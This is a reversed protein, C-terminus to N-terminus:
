DAAKRTHSKKKVARKKTAAARKRSAVARMAQLRAMVDQPLSKGPNHLAHYSLAATSIASALTPDGSGVAKCIMEALNVYVINSLVPASKAAIFRFNQDLSLVERIRDRQPRDIQPRTHEAAIKGNERRRVAQYGTLAPRLTCRLTEILLPHPSERATGQLPEVLALADDTLHPQGWVALYSGFWDEFTPVVRQETQRDPYRVHLRLKNSVSVVKGSRHVAQIVYPGPEAFYFGDAGYTLDIQDYLSDLERKLVVNRGVSCRGLLPRFRRPQNTGHAILYHTEGHSPQLTDRVTRSESGETLEWRAEVQVPEGFEFLASRDAPSVRLRLSAGGGISEREFAGTSSISETNGYASGGQVVRDLPGHLLHLMEGNDFRNDLQDYKAWYSNIGDPYEFPYNMYSLTNLTPGGPHNADWPHPLNFTHGLEHTVSQIYREQFTSGQAIQLGQWFVAAGQRRNATPDFMVGTTVTGSSGSQDDSRFWPVVAVYARWMAYGSFQQYEPKAAMVNFLDAESYTASPDTDIQRIPNPEDSLEISANAFNTKVAAHWPLLTNYMEAPSFIDVQWEFGRLNSSKFSVTAQYTSRAAGPITLQIWVQDEALKRCSVQGALRSGDAKGTFTVAATLTVTPGEMGTTVTGPNSEFTGLYSNINPLNARFADPKLSTFIDGSLTDLGYWTATDFDFRVVLLDPGAAGLFTGRMFQM